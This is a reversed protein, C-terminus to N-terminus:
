EHETRGLIDEQIERSLSTYYASFGSVRVVLDSYNEPHEMADRLKERSVANIQIEQGGHRFYTQILAALKSIKVEDSLVSPAYKQNVVSGCAVQTYDPKAVSHLSATAGKRDMERMPSSADSLPQRSKRGDPTAAIEAGAPINAVNSAMAVYVPGGDLTKYEDFLRASFNVYWQAYRDVFDDNNGYKPAHLLKVHIDEFGEFDAKLIDRLQALTILKENFVVQEIAALSDAVTAIGMCGAGYASPYVTGGRNIDLGREICTTCYCSLYPQQYQLPNLRNNYNLFWMMHADMGCRMQEELAQMFADMTTIDEAKGTAPGLREGTLMCVGDNLALEVYKPANYRGDTWPPQKGAIFNEICGVMCYNRCDEFAYGYRQLAPINVDDNMLAPYGLGTGVVDLCAEIFRKETKSSIRASLNPGPIECAKVARLLMYSLENTADEGNQPLVGGIAINVVDDGGCVCRVEAIKYLTCALMEEAQERTIRNAAIDSCYFPFLYQDMRGLAMAYRGEACLSIHALWVLQLAERFTQPARECLKGCVEAAETLGAKEAAKAYDSVMHLFAEMTIQAARLFDTKESDGNHKEISEKIEAIVGPIGKRLMGEYDPAFHDANTLFNRQGFAQMVVEARKLEAASFDGCFGQLSGVILDNQYIHKQSDEFLCQTGYARAIVNHERVHRWIGRAMYVDTSYRKNPWLGIEKKLAQLKEM